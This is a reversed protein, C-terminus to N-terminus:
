TLTSKIRRIGAAVAEEKIIKFTGLESINKVHPGGCYELSYDGIKYVRVTDGYKDEFLGTAGLKEAEKFPLDECTVSLAKKIQENVIEEVRSREDDTMKQPHLFDFRLREPTINSGKQQASEGLVDKLARHLLHTATHYKVSMEGTDALGGKFKKEAGIRSIEQHKKLERKFDEENVSIGKENALEKTFEFPFGYTSFLVFADKESIGIQSMKEFERLGKELTKKFKESEALIESIIEDSKEAINPYVSSYKTIVANVVKEIDAGLSDAYRVARRILRRLVYGRDTNSPVVGDSIIFVAARMHDAIIRRAKEDGSPIAAMISEFLDTEFVNSKGQLVTTVRELGAGTDVNKNALDGIIKGEKKEFQMFVDNWIEVVKQENDARVFEDHTLDGLGEKTLDYFMESSPGTPGTWTDKGKVNPWWNADKGLYYIRNKPIGVSEWIKLAEDDAPSNEDGAFVTIYLRKPDLGFGEEESTLLEYSWKITDEKFYDGLSWNGLMEFFTLHTADGIDNIDGTRVCKQIDAIRKGEPHPEGMLYPVLPQMGATTFLVSPDNEPILSASPIIAHDRKRFFDLFKQRIEESQM